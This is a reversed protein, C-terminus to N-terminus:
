WSGGGGGGGGGGVGGGGGGSSSPPKAAASTAVGLRPAILAMRYGYPDAHMAKPSQEIANAWRDIEGLAVAWATYERLIGHDAAWEVHKAESRELFRRFSEIQIWAASGKPTRVRLEWGRILATLGSGALLAGVAVGILGTANETAAYAASAFIAVAGVIIAFIGALWVVARRTDAGSDWLPSTKAFTEMDAQVRAWGAAFQKDYSSLSITSTSGFMSRLHEDQLGSPGRRILMKPEEELVIEGAHSRDILWSTRHEDRFRENWIVGGQWPAMDPPPSFDIAAMEGLERADVRRYPADEFNDNPGLAAETPGGAFIKERGARRVLLSTPAAALLAVGAALGGPALFGAGTNANVDFGPAPPVAPLAVLPDGVVARLTIGENEGVSDVRAVLHGPEVEEVTCGGRANRSGQDCTPALLENAAILHLELDRADVPWRDGHGNWEIARGTESTASPFVLTDLEYDIRYRHRGTITVNPDGIRIRTDAALRPPDINSPNIALDDPATPSALTITSNPDLGPVDRFIGRKEGTGFDYEIVETIQADGVGDVDDVVAVAWYENIREPAQCAATISSAVGVFIAGLGMLGLDIKRRGLAAM